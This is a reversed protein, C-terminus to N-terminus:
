WLIVMWDVDDGNTAADVYFVSFKVSGDGFDLSATAGPELERGNTSSVDSVGFYTNGANGVRARVEIAKVADNTNSIQVRTGATPIDTTGSDFRM